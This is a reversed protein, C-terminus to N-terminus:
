KRRTPAVYLPISGDGMDYTRITSDPCMWAVPEQEQQAPQPATYLPDETSDPTVGVGIQLREVSAGIFLSGDPMPSKYLWAVPEQQAPQELAARLAIIAADISVDKTQKWLAAFDDWPDFSDLAELAQRVVAEDILLKTM